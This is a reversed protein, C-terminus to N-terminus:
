STSARIEFRIVLSTAPTFRTTSSTVDFGGPVMSHSYAAVAALAVIIGRDMFCSHRASDDHTKCGRFPIDRTTPDVISGRSM